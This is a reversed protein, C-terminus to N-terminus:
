GVYYFFKDVNQVSISNQLISGGFRRQENCFSELRQLASLQHPVVVGVRGAAGFALVVVVRPGRGGDRRLSALYVSDRTRLAM